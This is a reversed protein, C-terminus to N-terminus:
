ASGQISPLPLSGHGGISKGVWPGDSAPPPVHLNNTQKKAAITETKNTELHLQYPSSDLFVCKFCAPQSSQNVKEGFLHSSTTFLPVYKM